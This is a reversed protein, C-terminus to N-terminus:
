LAKITLLSVFSSFQEQYCHKDIWTVIAMQLTQHWKRWSRFHCFWWFELEAMHLTQNVSEVLKAFFCGLEQDFIRLLQLFESQPQLVERAANLAVDLFQSFGDISLALLFQLGFLVLQLNYSQFGRIVDVSEDLIQEM